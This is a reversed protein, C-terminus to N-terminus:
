ERPTVGSRIAVQASLENIFGGHEIGKVTGQSEVADALKRLMAALQAGNDINKLAVREKAMLKLTVVEPPLHPLQFNDVDGFRCIFDKLESHCHESIEGEDHGSELVHVRVFPYPEEGAEWSIDARALNGVKGLWEWILVKFGMREIIELDKNCIKYM